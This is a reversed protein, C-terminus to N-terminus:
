KSLQQLTVELFDKGKYLRKIEELEKKYKTMSEDDFAIFGPTHLNEPHGPFAYSSEPPNFPPYKLIEAM